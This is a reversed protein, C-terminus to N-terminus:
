KAQEKPKKEAAAKDRAERAKREAVEADMKRSFEGTTQSWSNWRERDAKANEISEGNRRLWEVLKVYDSKKQPTWTTAPNQETDIVLHILKSNSNPQYVKPDAGAELLDLAIDYQGGWVVATMTPTCGAGNIHNIDAGLKLLTQIKEKKNAGGFQIVVFLPSNHFKAKGSNILNADGGHRFVAEFYGPFTTKCVIHTVSDGASM